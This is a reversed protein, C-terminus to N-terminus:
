KLNDLYRYFKDNLSWDLRNNLEQYRKHNSKKLKDKVISSGVGGVEDYARSLAAKSSNPPPNSVKKLFEKPLGKKFVINTADGEYKEKPLNKYFDLDQKTIKDNGGIKKGHKLVYSEPVKFQLMKRNPGEAYRGSQWASMSTHLKDKAEKKDKMKKKWLPGKGFYGSEYGRHKPDNFNGVYKGKKVMSGKHWKDVGRYVNVMKEKAKKATKLLTKGKSLKGIVPISMALESFSGGGKPNEVVGTLFELAPTIQKKSANEELWRKLGSSKQKASPDIRLNKM